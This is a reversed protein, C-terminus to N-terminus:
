GIKSANFLRSQGALWSLVLVMMTEREGRIEVVHELGRWPTRQVTFRNPSILAFTFTVRDFGPTFLLELYTSKRSM